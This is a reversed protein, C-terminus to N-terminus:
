IAGLKQGGDSVIRFGMRDSRSDPLATFRYTTRSERPGDDECGGRVVLRGSRPEKLVIDPHYTRFPTGTWERVGGAMALCGYPSALGARGKDQWQEGWPYRRGAPGRAAKEWEDESPLRAKAWDCYAQADDKTVQTVPDDPGAARGPGGPNRWNAGEVKDWQGDSWCWGFGTEEAKTKYGTAAVFKEFQGVRVERRAIVFSKVEIASPPLEDLEGDCCGRWFKGEPIAVMESGDIPNSTAKGAPGSQPAPPYPYAPLKPPNKERRSWEALLYSSITKDPLSLPPRHLNASLPLGGADVQGTTALPLDELKFGLQAIAKAHAPNGQDLVAIPLQERSIHAQGRLEVVSDALKEIRSKSEPTSILVVCNKGVLNQSPGPFTLALLAAAVIPSTKM